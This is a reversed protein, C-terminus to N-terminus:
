YQIFIKLKPHRRRVDMVVVVALRQVVVNSKELKM